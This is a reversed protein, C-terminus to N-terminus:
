INIFWVSIWIGNRSVAKSRCNYAFENRTSESNYQWCVCPFTCCIGMFMSAVHCLLHWDLKPLSNWKYRARYNFITFHEEVPPNPNSSFLRNHVVTRQSDYNLTLHDALCPPLQLWTDNIHNVRVWIRWLNVAALESRWWANLCVVSSSFIFFLIFSYFIFFIVEPNITMAKALYAWPWWGLQKLLGLFM